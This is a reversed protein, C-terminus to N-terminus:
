IYIISVTVIGLSMDLELVIQSSAQLSLPSRIPLQHMLSFTSDSAYQKNHLYVTDIEFLLITCIKCCEFFFFFCILDEVRNFLWLVNVQLLWLVEHAFAEDKFDWERLRRYCKCIILSHCTGFGKSCHFNSNGIKGKFRTFLNHRNKSYYKFFVRNGICHLQTVSFHWINYWM